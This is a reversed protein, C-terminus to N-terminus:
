LLKLMKLVPECIETINDIYKKTMKTKWENAVADSKRITSHEFDLFDEKMKQDNSKTHSDLFAKTSVTVPMELFRFLKDTEMEVNSTLDEFKLLYHRNPYRKVLGETLKVDDELEACLRSVNNCAPNVQCWGLGARSAMIGRPDRILHIIKWEKTILPDNEILASLEKVRLRVTKILHIPFNSCLNGVFEPDHCLTRNYYSCEDWVRKNRQMDNPLGTLGNTSQLYDHSFRCHFLSQILETKSGLPHDFYLLPEFSYFVGPISKIIDGLFTSGSRWTTAVLIKKSIPTSATNNTVNFQTTYYTM